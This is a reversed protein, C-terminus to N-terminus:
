ENCNRINIQPDGQKNQGKQQKHNLWETTDSENITWPSCCALSGQAESDGLMQEFGHGSLQQHWAVMEDETGKRIRWPALCIVSAWNVSTFFLILSHIPCVARCRRGRQPQSMEGPLISELKHKMWGPMKCSTGQMSTLHAPHCHVATNFEKGPASGSVQGM